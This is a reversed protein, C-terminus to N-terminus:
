QSPMPRTRSKRTTPENDRGFFFALVKFPQFGCGRNRIRILENLSEPVEKRIINLAGNLDANIIGKSWKYLGRKIRKGTFSLKNEPSYAPIPDKDLSSAKSTYAEETFVVRIGYDEGKYAIMEKLRDLPVSVFNQNNKKGIKIKQKWGENEGIIITGTQTEVAYNIILRSAKHMYDNMKCERKLSLKGIKNSSGKDGINSMLEAKTKNFFQNISKLPRGNILIPNVDSQNSVLTALNNLGLDIGFVNEFNVEKKIPEREYVVEIVFHKFKPVIRVQNFKEVTTKIPDIGVAKPFHIFNNKIKCQQNTFIVIGLGDKKDKYNPLKPRGTFVGPNKKFERNANFFSKWDKEILRLIQQTTQAPLARYVDEYDRKIIKDMKPYNIIKGNHIFNQRM